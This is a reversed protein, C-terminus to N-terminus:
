RASASPITVSSSFTNKLSHKDGGRYALSPNPITPVNNSPYALPWSTTKGGLHRKHRTQSCGRMNCSSRRKSKTHKGKSM